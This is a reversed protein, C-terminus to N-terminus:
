TQSTWRARWILCDVSNQRQAEHRAHPKTISEPSPTDYMTGMYSADRLRQREENFRVSGLQSAQQGVVDRVTELDLEVVAWSGFNWSVAAYEWRPRSSKVLSLRLYKSNSLEENELHHRWWHSPIRHPNSDTRDRLVKWCIMFSVILTDAMYTAIWAPKDRDAEVRVVPKTLSEPSPKDCM